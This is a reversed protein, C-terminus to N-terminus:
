ARPPFLDPPFDLDLPDFAAPLRWERTAALAVVAPTPADVPALSCGDLCAVHCDPPCAGDDPCPDAFAAGGVFAVVLALLLWSVVKM